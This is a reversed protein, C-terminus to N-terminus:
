EIEEKTKDVNDTNTTKVMMEVLNANEFVREYGEVTTLIMGGGGGAMGSMMASLKFIGVVKFDKGNINIQKRLNIERDFATEALGSSIMIASSEGPEVWRGSDLTVFDTSKFFEFGEEDITFFVSSKTENNFKVAVPSAYEKIVDDVTSLNKIFRTDSDTIEVTTNSQMNFADGPAIMITNSGLSEFQEEFTATVGAGVSLLAVIAAIGIVVGILTLFTRIGARRLNKLSEETEDIM